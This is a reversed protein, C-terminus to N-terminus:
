EKYINLWNKQIEAVLGEEIMQDLASQWLEVYGDPVDASFCLYNDVELFTYQKEFESISYGTARALEGISLDSTLFADIRSLMIKRVNLDPSRVPALNTFGESVLVQESFSGRLTGIAKLKRADELSEIRVGSDKRIYFSEKKSFLSGVWKVGLLEREPIRAVTFLGVKPYIQLSSYGRAWPVVQIEIDIGLRNMIERVIAVGLGDVDGTNPDTFSLPPLEETYLKLNSSIDHYSDAFLFLDIGLFALFILIIRKKVFGSM